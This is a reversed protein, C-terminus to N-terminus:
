QRPDRFRFPETINVIVHDKLISHNLLLGWIDEKTIQNDPSKKEFIFNVFKEITEISHFQLSM